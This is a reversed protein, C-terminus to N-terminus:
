CHRAIGLFIKPRTCAGVKGTPRVQPATWTQWRFHIGALSPWPLDHFSLGNSHDFFPQMLPAVDSHFTSPRYLKFGKQEISSIFPYSHHFSISLSDGCHDSTSRLSKSQCRPLHHVVFIWIKNQCVCTPRWCLIQLSWMRSFFTPRLMCGWLWWGRLSEPHGGMIQPSRRVWDFFISGCWGLCDCQSVVGFKASNRDDMTMRCKTVSSRYYKIVIAGM